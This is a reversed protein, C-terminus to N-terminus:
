RRVERPDDYEVGDDDGRQRPNPERLAQVKRSLNCLAECAGRAKRGMVTGDGQETAIADEANCLDTLGDMVADITDERVDFDNRNWAYRVALEGDNLQDDPLDLGACELASRQAPTLRITVVRPESNPNNM